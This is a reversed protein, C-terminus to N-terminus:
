GSKSTSKESEQIDVWFSTELVSKIGRRTTAQVFDVFYLELSRFKAQAAKRFRSKRLLIERRM